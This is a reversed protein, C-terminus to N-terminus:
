DPVDEEGPMENYQNYHYSGNSLVGVDDMNVLISIIQYVQYMSLMVKNQIGFIKVNILVYDQINIKQYILM